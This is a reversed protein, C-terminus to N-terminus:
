TNHRSISGLAGICPANPHLQKVIELGSQVNWVVTVQMIPSNSYNLRARQVGNSNVHSDVM